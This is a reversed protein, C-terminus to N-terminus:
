WRWAGTFAAGSLVGGAKADLGVLAAGATINPCLAASLWDAGMQEASLTRKLLRTHMSISLSTTKPVITSHRWLDHAIL